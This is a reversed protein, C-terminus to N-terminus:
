IHCVKPSDSSVASTASSGSVVGGGTVSVKGMREELTSQKTPAEPNPRRSSSSQSQSTNVSGSGSSLIPNALPWGIHTHLLVIM